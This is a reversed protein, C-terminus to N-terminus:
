TEPPAYKALAQLALLIDTFDRQITSAEEFAHTLEDVGDNFLNTVYEEQVPTLGLNKFANSLGDLIEMTLRQMDNRNSTDRQAAAQMMRTLEAVNCGLYHIQELRHRGTDMNAIYIDAAEGLLTLNDRLRGVKDPEATPLNQILISIQDYNVVARSKMEFLRGMGRMTEMVSTQLPSVVPDTSMNITGTKGRIQVMGRLGWSVLADIAHKSLSDYDKCAAARRQFEIVVGLDGLGSMASFAMQQAMSSQSRLDRLAARQALASEVKLHLEEAVIPKTLFHDGGAKYAAIREETTDHGTVFIVPTDAYEPLLRLERCTEYGSLGPMEIDLLITDVVPSVKLFADGSAFELVEYDKSLLKTLVMRQRDHDDVIAISHREDM